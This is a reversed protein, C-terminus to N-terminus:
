IGTAVAMKYNAITAGLLGDVPLGEFQISNSLTDVTIPMIENYCLHIPSKMPM